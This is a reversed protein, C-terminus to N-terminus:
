PESLLRYAWRLRAVIGKPRGLWVRALERKMWEIPIGAPGEEQLLIHISEELWGITGRVHISGFRERLHARTKIEEAHNM